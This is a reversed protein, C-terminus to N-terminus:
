KKKQKRKAIEYNKLRAATFGRMYEKNKPDQEVGPGHFFDYYGQLYATDQKVHKRMNDRERLHAGM